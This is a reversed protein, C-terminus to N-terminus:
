ERQQGVHETRSFSTSVNASPSGDIATARFTHWGVGPRCTWEFPPSADEGVPRDDCYLSVKRVGSRDNALVSVRLTGDARPEVATIEVAPGIGDAVERGRVEVAVYESVRWEIGGPASAGAAPAEKITRGARDKFVVREAEEGRYRIRVSAAGHRAPSLEVRNFAARRARIGVGETVEIYWELAEGLSELPSLRIAAIGERGGIVTQQKLVPAGEPFSLRLEATAQEGYLNAIALVRAAGTPSVPAILGRWGQPLQGSLDRTGASCQRVEGARRNVYLVAGVDAVTDGAKARVRKLAGLTVFATQDRHSPKRAWNRGPSTGGRIVGTGGVTVMALRDNVCWWASPIDSLQSVPKSGGEYHCTYQATIGSRVYFYVPLGSWSFTASESARMTLLVVCPGHAFSFFAQYRRLNEYYTVLGATSFADDSRDSKYEVGTVAAPTGRRARRVLFVCGALVVIAVFALFLYLAKRLRRKKAVLFVYIAAGVLVVVLGVLLWGPVIRFIASLISSLSHMRLKGAAERVRRGLDRIAGRLSYTYVGGTLSYPDCYVVPATTGDARGQPIVVGCFGDTRRQASTSGWSFSTWREPTRHILCKQNRYHYTGNLSRLAQELDVPEASPGHHKHMLYAMAVKAWSGRHYDYQRVARTHRCLLNAAQHELAAAIPDKKVTAGYCLALLGAGYYSDYEAGHPHALGGEALCLVKLWELVGDFSNRDYTFTAPVHKSTLHAIIDVYCRGEFLIDGGYWISARGHHDSSYDEYLNWGQAWDKIPKGQALVTKARDQPTSVMDIGSAAVASRFLAADEDDDFLFAAGFTSSLDQKVQDHNGGQGSNWRRVVRSRSAGRTAVARFLARTEPDLRDWLMAAALTLYGIQDARCGIKREWQEGSRHEDPTNALYPYPNEVYASTLCCWRIAKVARDLLVRRSLRRKGFVERDTERLLVAYDLLVMGTGPIVIITAYPDTRWNGYERFDFFGANPIRPDERWLPDFFDVADEIVALYRECLEREAGRFRVGGALLAKAGPPAVTPAFVLSLLGFVVAWARIRGNLHGCMTASKGRVCTEEHFIM